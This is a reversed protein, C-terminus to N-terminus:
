IHFFTDNNDQGGQKSAAGGKRLFLFRCVELKVAKDTVVYGGIGASHASTGLVEIEVHGLTVVHGTSHVEIVTEVPAKDGKSGTQSQIHRGVLPAGHTNGTLYLGVEVVEATGNGGQTQTLGEHLQVPVVSGHAEGDALGPMGHRGVHRVHVVQLRTSREIGEVAARLQRGIHVQTGAKGEGGAHQVQVVVQGGTRGALALVVVLITHGFEIHTNSVLVGLNQGLGTQIHNVHTGVAGDGVPSDLVSCAGGDLDLAHQVGERRKNEELEGVALELQAGLADQGLGTLVHVEKGTVTHVGEVAVAGDIVGGHTVPSGEYAELVALLELHHTHQTIHLLETGGLIQHIVGNPNVSSGVDVDLLSEAGSRGHGPVQALEGHGQLVVEGGGLESTAGAVGATHEGAVLLPDQVV